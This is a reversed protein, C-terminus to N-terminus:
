LGGKDAFSYYDEKAIIIHDLVPLDLAEGIAKMKKTLRTDSDSPQVYGSPHNHALIIGAANSVLAIQFVIKADVATGSQGGQSIVSYGMVRNARNLCLILFEERYEIQNSWVERLLKAVERSCTISQMEKFKTKSEYTVIIEALNSNKLYDSHQM